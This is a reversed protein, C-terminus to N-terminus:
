NKYNTFIEEISFDSFKKDYWIVKSEVKVANEIEYSSIKSVKIFKYIKLEKKTTSLNKDCYDYLNYKLTWETIEFICVKFPELENIKYDSSDTYKKEEIKVTNTAWNSFDNSIKYIEEKKFKEFNDNSTQSYILYNKLAKFNSDRLNRFLELQERALNVWIIYNKNYSNLSITSHIVSFIWAIWVTFIVIAVMVEIISFWKKNIKKM